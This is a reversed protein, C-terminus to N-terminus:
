GGGGGTPSGGGCGGNSGGPDCALRQYPVRISDSGGGCGGNSGGPDCALSPNADAGGFLGAWAAALLVILLSLALLRPLMKLNTNMKKAGKANLLNPLIAAVM